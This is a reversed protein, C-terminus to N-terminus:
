PRMRREGAPGRGPADVPSEQVAAEEPLAERGAERLAEQLTEQGPQRLPRRVPQRGPGRAAGASAGNGGGAATRDAEAGVAAPDGDASSWSLADGVATGTARITGAPLELAHLATGHVASRRWPRLDRYTAVVQGHESIFVVDLPYRVGFMHVARCPSLLIGEGPSPAPRFLFGRVRSPLDDALRVATGLVTGRTRNLVRITSV